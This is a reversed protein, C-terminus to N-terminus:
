LGFDSGKTKGKGGVEQGAPRLNGTRAGKPTLAPRPASSLSRPAAEESGQSGKAAQVPKQFSMGDKQGVAAADFVVPAPKWGEVQRKQRTLDVTREARETQTKHKDTLERMQKTQQKKLAARQERERKQIDKLNLQLAKVRDREDQILRSKDAKAKLEKLQNKTQTKQAGYAAKLKESQASQQHDHKRGLDTKEHTQVSHLQGRYEAAKDEFFQKEKMMRAARRKADEAATKGTANNFSKGASNNMRPNM